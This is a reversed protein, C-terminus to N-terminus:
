EARENGKRKKKKKKKNGDSHQPNIRTNPKNKNQKEVNKRRENSLLVYQVHNKNFRKITWFSLFYQFQMLTVFSYVISITLILRISTCFNSSFWFYDYFLVFSDSWDARWHAICKETQLPLHLMQRDTYILDNTIFTRWLAYQKIRFTSAKKSNFEIPVFVLRCITKSVFCLGFGPPHCRPYYFCIVMMRASLTQGIFGEFCNSNKSRKFFSEPYVM